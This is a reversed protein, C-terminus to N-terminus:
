SNSLILSFLLLLRLLCTCCVLSSSSILFAFSLFAFPLYFNLSVVFKPYRAECSISLISGQLGRRGWYNLKGLEPPRDHFYLTVIVWRGSQTPFSLKFFHLSGQGGFVVLSYPQSDYLHLLQFAGPFSLICPNQSLAKGVIRPKNPSSRHFVIFCGLLIYISGHNTSPHVM